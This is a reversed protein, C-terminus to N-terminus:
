FLWCIFDYETHIARESSQLRVLFGKTTSINRRSSEGNNNV